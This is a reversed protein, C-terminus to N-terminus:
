NKIYRKIASVDNYNLPIEKDVLRLTQNKTALSVLKNGDMESYQNMM